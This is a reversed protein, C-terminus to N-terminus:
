ISEMALLETQAPPPTDSKFRTFRAEFILRERINAAGFRVKIAGIEAIDEGDTRVASPFVREIKKWDSDSSAISKREEYFKLFRYLYFIADFPTKAPDGGFLDMSIPRPNDRKMGFSNRQNLVLWAADTMEAGAKLIQGIGKAKTGEDARRDEPKVVGIHDVVVFPVKGNARRKVFTRALSVLQPASQDTCKVVEFPRASIWNAFDMCKEFEKESMLRAERQRRAEIEHQQAVMQRMIQDSSQDYSLFCVPHGKKLAHTMLQCIISTGGEGSSKLLGYLNGAEFCPESIVEAIEGLAIPVGRVEGRQYAASLADLYSQGAGKGAEGKIREARLEALQDELPAIEALIDKDPPLDYALAAVDECAVIARRRIWMEHIAYAYDKVNIVTVAEAALRALYQQMSMEGVNENPLFSKITVPNVGKGSRIMQEIVEYIRRHLPEHFHQAELFNSIRDFSANNTLLAGLLAQEAEINAPVVREPPNHMNVDAM